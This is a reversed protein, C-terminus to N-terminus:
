PNSAETLRKWINILRYAASLARINVFSVGFELYVISNLSGITPYFPHSVWSILGNTTNICGVRNTGNDTTPKESGGSRVDKPPFHGHGNPAQEDYDTGYELSEGGSMCQTHKDCSSGKDAQTM